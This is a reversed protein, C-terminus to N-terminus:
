GVDKMNPGREDEPGPGADHHTHPMGFGPSHGHILKQLREVQKRLNIVEGNSVALRRRCRAVEDDSMWKQNVVLTLNEREDLLEFIFRTLDRGGHTWAHQAATAKIHEARNDDM